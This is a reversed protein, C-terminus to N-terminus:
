MSKGFIGDQDALRKEYVDLGTLLSCIISFGSIVCSMASIQDIIRARLVYM